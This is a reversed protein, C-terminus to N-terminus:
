DSDTRTSFERELQSNRFPGGDRCDAYVASGGCRRLRALVRHDLAMPILAIRNIDYHLLRQAYQWNILVVGFDNREQAPRHHIDTEIWPDAEGISRERQGM